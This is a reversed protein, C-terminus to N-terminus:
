NLIERYLVFYENAIKDFSYDFLSQKGNFLLNQLDNNPLILLSNLIQSLDEYSEYSYGNYSSKILGNPDSAKSVLLIKSYDWAELIVNSFGEFKSNLLVIDSNRFEFSIDINKNIISVSDNLVENFQLLNMIKEYYLRDYIPGVIYFHFSKLLNLNSGLYVLLELQNKQKCIRSPLLVKIKTKNKEIYKSSSKDPNINYGNPLFFNKEKISYVDKLYDNQIKSNCVYLNVFLKSWFYFDFKSIFLNDRKATNRFGFIIKSNYFFKGFFSFRHARGLWAHVIDPKYKYLLILYKIFAFILSLKGNKNRLFTVNINKNNNKLYEDNCNISVLCINIKKNGLLHLATEVFQKQAGGIGLDPILLLTKM